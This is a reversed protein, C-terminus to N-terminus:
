MQIVFVATVAQHLVSPAPPHISPAKVPSLSFFLWYCSRLSFQLLLPRGCTPLSTSPGPLTTSKFTCCCFVQPVMLHQAHIIKGLHLPMCRVTHIYMHVNNKCANMDSYLETLSRSKLLLDRKSEIFRPKYM